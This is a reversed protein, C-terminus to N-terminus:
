YKFGPGFALGLTGQIPSPHGDFDFLVEFNIRFGISVNREGVRYVFTIRTGPTSHALDYTAYGEFRHQGEMAFGGEAVLGTGHGVAAYTALGAGVGIM